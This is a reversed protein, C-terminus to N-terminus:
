YLRSSLGLYGFISEPKCTTDNRYVREYAANRWAEIFDKGNIPYQHMLADLESGLANDQFCANKLEQALAYDEPTAIGDLFLTMFSEYLTGYKAIDGHTKQHDAINNWQSVWDSLVPHPAIHNEDADKILAEVRAHTIELQDTEHSGAVALLALIILSAFCGSILGGHDPKKPPESTPESTEAEKKYECLKRNYIKHVKYANFSSFGLISMLILAWIMITIPHFADLLSFSIDM